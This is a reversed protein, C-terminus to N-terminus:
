REVDDSIRLREIPPHSRMHVTPHSPGRTFGLGDRGMDERELTEEGEMADCCGSKEEGM